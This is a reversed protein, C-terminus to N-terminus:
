PIAGEIVQVDGERGSLNYMVWSGNYVAQDFYYVCVRNVPSGYDIAKTLMGDPVGNIAATLLSSCHVYEFGRGVGDNLEDGACRWTGSVGWGAYGVDIQGGGVNCQGNTDGDALYASHALDLSTKLSAAVSQITVRYADQSMNLFRPFAIIALIALIVIVSVLEILTFGNHLGHSCSQHFRYRYGLM